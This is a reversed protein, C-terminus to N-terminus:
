GKLRFLKFTELIALVVKREQEAQYNNNNITSNDNHVSNMNKKRRKAKRTKQLIHAPKTQKNTEAENKRQKTKWKNMVHSILRIAM